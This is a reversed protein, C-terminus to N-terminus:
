VLRWLISQSSIIIDEKELRVEFIDLNDAEEYFKDEIDAIEDELDEKLKILEEEFQSLKIKGLKVKDGAASTM